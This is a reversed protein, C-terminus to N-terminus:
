DARLRADMQQAELPDVEYWRETAGDQIRIWEPYIAMVIEKGYHFFTVEALWEDEMLDPKAAEKKDALLFGVAMVRVRSESLAYYQFDNQRVRLFGSDLMKSELSEEPLFDPKPLLAKGLDTLGTEVRFYFGPLIEPFEIAGKSLAHIVVTEDGSKLEIDFSEMTYPIAGGWSIPDGIILLFQLSEIFARDTMTVRGHENSVTVEDWDPMAHMARFAKLQEYAEAHAYPLLDIEEREYKQLQSKLLQNEEKLQELEASLKELSDDTEVDALADAFNEPLGPGEDSCGAIFILALIVPLWRKM